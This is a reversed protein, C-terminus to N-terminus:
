HILESIDSTRLRPLFVFLKARGRRLWFSNVASVCLVRLRKPISRFVPTSELFCKANEADRRHIGQGRPASCLLRLACLFDKSFFLFSRNQTRLKSYTRNSEFSM